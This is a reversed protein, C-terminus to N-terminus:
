KNGDATNKVMRQILNETGYLPYNMNFVNSKKNVDIYLKNKMTNYAACQEGMAKIDPLDQISMKSTQLRRMM